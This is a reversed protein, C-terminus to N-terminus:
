GPTPRSDLDRFPESDQLQWLTSTVIGHVVFSQRELNGAFSGTRLNLAGQSERRRGRMGIKYRLYLLSTVAEATANGGTLLLVLPESEGGDDWQGM